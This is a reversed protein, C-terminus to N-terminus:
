WQHLAPAPRPAPKAGERACEDTELGRLARPAAALAHLGLDLLSSDMDPGVDLISIRDTRLVTFPTEARDSPRRAVTTILETQRSKRSGLMPPPQLRPSDTRTIQVPTVLGREELDQRFVQAVRRAIQERLVEQPLMALLSNSRKLSSGVALTVLISGLSADSLRPSAPLAEAAHADSEFTELNVEM